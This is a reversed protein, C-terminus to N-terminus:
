PVPTNRTRREEEQQRQSEKELFRREAPSLSQIGHRSIKELLADVTKQREIRQRQEREARVAAKRLRRREFFGPKREPSDDVAFAYEDGGFGTEAIDGGYKLAQKMQYCSLYGFVAICLLLVSQSTFLAFLGLAVAGVMGVSTAIEMSTRYGKRPWLWAQLMRGGDFPYFPLLVNFLLLIYNIAFFRMLWAQATSPYFSSDIPTLPALPNIPVAGPNGAWLVLVVAAIACLIVNVLPGCVTTFMHARPNNPLDVRALGGLPWLLIEDADGGVKRAGYCHGLEHLLVCGFLILQTGLAYLLVRTMAAGELGRSELSLFVVVFILFTVHVRVDIGVLRGVRFSWNLPNDMFRGGRAM